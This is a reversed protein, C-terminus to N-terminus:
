NAWVLSNIRGGRDRILGRLAVVSARTLAWSAKAAMGIGETAGLGSALSWLQEGAKTYDRERIPDRYESWRGWVQETLVNGITGGSLPMGATSQTQVFRLGKEINPTRGRERQLPLPLERETLVQRVQAGVISLRGSTFLVNDPLPRDSNNPPDIYDILSAPLYPGYGRGPRDERIQRLTRSDLLRANPGLQSGYQHRFLASGVRGVTCLDPHSFNQIQLEPGYNRMHPIRYGSIGTFTYGAFTQFAERALEDKFGVKLSMYGNAGPAESLYPTAEATTIGNMVSMYADWPRDEFGQMATLLGTAGVHALNNTLLGSQWHTVSETVRNAYGMKLVEPAAVLDGM